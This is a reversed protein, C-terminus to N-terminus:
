NVQIVVRRNYASGDITKNNAIPHSAGHGVVSMQAPAFGHRWMFSAIVEAYQRSYFHRNHRGYVKDTYGYIKIPYNTHHTHISNHLYLAIMRLTKVKNDKILTTTSVFFVDTPLVMILRSGQQIVQVGSKRILGLLAKQQSANLETSMEMMSYPLIHPTKNSCASLGLISLTALSMLLIRLTILPKM